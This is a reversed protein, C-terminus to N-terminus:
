VWPSHISVEDLRHYDTFFNMEQGGWSKARYKLDSEMDGPRRTSNVLKQVDAVIQRSDLQNKQFLALIEDKVEPALMVDVTGNVARPRKWFDVKEAYKFDSDLDNAISNLLKVKESTEPELRFVTYGNFLREASSLHVTVVILACLALKMKCITDLTEQTGRKYSSLHNRKKLFLSFFVDM